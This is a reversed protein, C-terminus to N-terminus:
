PPPRSSYALAKHAAQSM